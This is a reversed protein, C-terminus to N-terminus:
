RSPHINWGSSASREIMDVVSAAEMTTLTQRASEIELQESIDMGPEGKLTDDIIVLADAIRMCIKASDTELIAAVYVDHWRCRHHKM